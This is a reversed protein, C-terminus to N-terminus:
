VTVTITKPSFRCVIRNGTGKPLNKVFATYDAPSVIKRQDFEISQRVRRSIALTFVFFTFSFFMDIVTVLVSTAEGSMTAGLFSAFPYMPSNADTSRRHFVFVSQCHHVFPCHNHNLSVCGVNGLMLRAIGMPDPTSVPIRHGSHYVIFLPIFIISACAMIIALSKLLQFYLTM